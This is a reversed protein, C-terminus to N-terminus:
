DIKRQHIVIPLSFFREVATLIPFVRGRHVVGWIGIDKIAELPVDFPSEELVTFNAKKGPEISGIEDELRLSYAAEITVGKLADEVSLRQEPGPVNGTPTLRNVAAWVLYLPKGPAMPMDSHLSISLGARVADGLPAIRAAREPGLGIEAYRDSLAVPYYPNASVIAGLAKLRAIQDPAAIGFHVVTTRHDDRPNRNLASQLNALLLDLGKDGNNHIHIQYGADWYTQFARSFIDPPMIWEGEHGDLYGGRMQMLQSFIAGDTFLKVQKPLFRTNAAGWGLTEETKAILTAPGAAMHALALSKGDPIFYFSFPTAADGFVANTGDYIAKTGLGGPEASATIGAAHLYGEVYTLGAILKEASAVAPTIPGLVSLAGAEHFHGRAMDTQARENAQLARHFDEDIGFKEMAASNLFFEHASRHWIIIPFDPALDDLIQRSMEGHWYHHYGWSVFDGSAPDHAEIASKLRARYDEPSRSARSFGGATDWDEIAIVSTMMTFAALWPHIHQDIFGAVLVKDALSKDLRAGHKKAWKKLKKRSGVAVIRGGAVAVAEARPQDPNMTIIERAIFVTKDTEHMEGSTQGLAQIPAILLAALVAISPRM